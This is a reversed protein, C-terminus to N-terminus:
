SVATWGNINFVPDSRTGGCNVGGYLTRCAPQLSINDSVLFDSAMDYTVESAIAIEGFKVAIIPRCEEKSDEKAEAANQRSRLRPHGPWHHRGAREPDAALEAIWQGHWRLVPGPLGSQVRM